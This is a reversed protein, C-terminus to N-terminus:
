LDIRKLALAAQGRVYGNEKADAAKERLTDITKVDKLQTAAKALGEVALIRIAPNDDTKLAMVLADRTTETPPLQVLAEAAKRRVSPNKDRRLTDVLISLIEPSVPAGERSNQSVLDIAKGRAGETDAAGSMLYALLDAIGKQDPRGMVTYRTTVDFSVGIRGSPDAPKYAVNALRPHNSLDPITRSVDVTRQSVVPLSETDRGPGGPAGNGTFRAVFFGAVGVVLVAALRLLVDAARRRRLAVVNAPLAAPMPPAARRLTEIRLLGLTAERFALSPEAAVDDGLREWAAELETVEARCAPCSAIHRQVDQREGDREAAQAPSWEGSLRMLTTERVRLADHCEM